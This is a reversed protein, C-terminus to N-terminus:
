AANSWLPGAVPPLGVMRMRRWEWTLCADGANHDPVKWGRRHCAAVIAKKVEDGRGLRSSGIVERRVTLADIESKACSGRYAESIAIGRLAFQQSVSVYNSKGHLMAHLPLTAELVMSNPQYQDMFAALENEFAAYRAGEGGWKPLRWTGFMPVRSTTLGYAWGVVSSLDLALVGGIPESQGRVDLPV